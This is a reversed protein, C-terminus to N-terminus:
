VASKLREFSYALEVITLASQIGVINRSWVAWGCYQMASASGHCEVVGALLPPM